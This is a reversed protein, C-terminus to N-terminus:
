VNDQFTEFKRRPGKNLVEIMEDIGMLALYRVV